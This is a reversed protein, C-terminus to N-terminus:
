ATSGEDDIMEANQVRQIAQDPWHDPVVFRWVPPQEADPQWQVQHPRFDEGIIDLWPQLPWQPRPSVGALWEQRSLPQVRVTRSAQRAEAVTLWQPERTPRTESYPMFFRGKVLGQSSDVPRGLAETVKPHHGLALQHNMMHQYKRGLSDQLSPGVWHHRQESNGAPMLLFFKVALEIHVLRQEAVQELVVDLEGLTRGSENVPYHSLRIRWDPHAEWYALWLAEFYKGLRGTRQALLQERTHTCHKVWHSFWHSHDQWDVFGPQVTPSASGIAWILDDTVLALSDSAETM